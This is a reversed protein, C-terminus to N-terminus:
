VCDKCVSKACDSCIPTSCSICCVKTKRDKSRPCMACRVRKALDVSPKPIECKLIRSIPQRLERPLHPNILRRKLHPEILQWALSKTFDFRSQECNEPLSSHIVFANVMSINMMAYFLTLPWRRSRRNTSYITCKEDLADIGGKTSNYYEIIEPKNTVMNVSAGNHMSSM